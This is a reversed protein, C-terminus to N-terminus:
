LIYEVRLVKKSKEVKRLQDYDWISAHEIHFQREFCQQSCLGLDKYM